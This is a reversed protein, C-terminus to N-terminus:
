SANGALNQIETLRQSMMRGIQGRHFRALIDQRAKKGLQRAASPNEVVHRMLRRLHDESPHAWRHDSALPMKLNKFHPQCSVLRYDILHSNTPNMYDLHGGWGTAITPLGLCMAEMFPRGWGEGRTPLVYADAARYLRPMDEHSLHRTYFIINSPLNKDKNDQRISHFIENKINSMTLKDPSVKLILSVDQDERFEKLFTKLLIDWGKRQGNFTKMSTRNLVALFNFGRKGPIPLPDRNEGYTATDISEPIIFIPRQVGAKLYVDRCFRSPVWVEHFRNIFEVCRSHIRDTEFMFRGVHYVNPPLKGKGIFRLNDSVAQFYSQINDETAMVQSIYILFNNKSLDLNIVRYGHYLARSELAERDRASASTLDWTFSGFSKILGELSRGLPKSSLLNQGCDLFRNRLWSPQKWLRSTYLTFYFRLSEYPLMWVDVGAQKLAMVLDLTEVVYSSNGFFQSGWIITVPKQVRISNASEIRSNTCM